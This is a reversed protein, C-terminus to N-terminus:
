VTTTEDLTLILPLCRGGWDYFLNLVDFASLDMTIHLMYATLVTIIINFIYQVYRHQNPKM